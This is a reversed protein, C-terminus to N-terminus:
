VYTALTDLCDWYEIDGDENLTDIDEDEIWKDVDADTCDDVMWVYNLFDCIQWHRIIDDEPYDNMDAQWVM